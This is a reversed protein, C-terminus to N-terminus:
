RWSLDWVLDGHNELATRVPILLVARRGERTAEIGRGAPLVGSTVVDSPVQIELRLTDGVERTKGTPDYVQALAKRGAQDPVLSKVWQAQPGRPIFVRLAPREEHEVKSFRIGDDGLHVDQIAKFTGQRSVLSATGNWQVGAGALDHSSEPRDPSLARTTLKGSGDAALNIHIGVLEGGSCAVLPLLLLSLFAPNM